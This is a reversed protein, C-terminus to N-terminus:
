HYDVFAKLRSSVVQALNDMIKLGMKAEKHVLDYFDPSKIVLLRSPAITVVSATYRNPPVLFSWGLIKGPVRITYNAGKEFRISIAGEELIFLKDARAGEECLTVGEPVSEEQCFRAAIALEEDKLGRFIEVNRLREIPIM